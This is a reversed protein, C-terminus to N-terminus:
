HIINKKINQCNNRNKFIYIHSFLAFAPPFLIIVTFSFFFFRLACPGVPPLAESRVRPSGSGESAASAASTDPADRQIACADVSDFVTAGPSRVPQSSSGGHSRSATTSIL